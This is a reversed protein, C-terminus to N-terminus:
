HQIDNTQEQRFDDIISAGDTTVLIGFVVSLWLIVGIVVAPAGWRKEALDISQIIWNWGIFCILAVGSFVLVLFGINALLTIIIM